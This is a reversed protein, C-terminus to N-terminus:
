EECRMLSVSITEDSEDTSGQYKNMVGVEDGICQAQRLVEHYIPQTQKLLNDSIEDRCSVLDFVQDSRFVKLQGIEPPFDIAQLKNSDIFVFAM